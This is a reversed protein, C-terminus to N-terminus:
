ALCAVLHVRLRLCRRSSFRHSHHAALHHDMFTYEDSQPSSQDSETTSTADGVHSSQQLQDFRANPEGVKTEFDTLSARMANSLEKVKADLESSGAACQVASEL